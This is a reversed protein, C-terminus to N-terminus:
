IARAAPPTQAWQRTVSLILEAGRTLMDEPELEMSKTEMFEKFHEPMAEPMKAFKRRWGNIQNTSLEWGAKAFAKIVLHTVRHLGTRSRYADILGIVMAHFAEAAAGTAAKHAKRRSTRVDDVITVQYLGV